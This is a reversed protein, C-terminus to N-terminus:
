NCSSLSTDKKSLLLLSLTMFCFSSALYENTLVQEFFYYYIIILSFKFYGRKCVVFIFYLVMATYVIFGLIGYSHFIFDWGNEIYQRGWFTYRAVENTTLHTGKGWLHVFLDPSDWYSLAAGLRLEGRSSLTETSLFMDRLPEFIAFIAIGISSLLLGLKTHYILLLLFLFIWTSRNFTLTAALLVIYFIYSKPEKKELSIFLWIICMTGYVQLTPSFGQPAYLFPLGKELLMLSGFMPRQLCTAVIACILGVIINLLLSSRIIDIDTNVKSALIATLTFLIPYFILISHYSNVIFGISVLGAILTAIVLCRARFNIENLLYYKFAIVWIILKDFPLPVNITLLTWLYKEPKIRM